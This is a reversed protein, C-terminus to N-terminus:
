ALRFLRKGNEAAAQAIEEATCGKIEAIKEAVYRLNRSDNRKGRM